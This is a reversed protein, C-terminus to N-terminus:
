IEEAGRLRMKLTQKARVLLSQLAKLRLGMIRAAEQNSLGESFCLTLAARQRDPLAQLARNLRGIEEQQLMVAEALPGPDAFIPEEPLPLFTPRRKQDLARNFVVRYFWTTFKAGKGEKWSDPKEWLMLFAHQVVDEAAERQRLLSWALAYFRLHHRKVLATFAPHSGTQISRLLVEDSEETM